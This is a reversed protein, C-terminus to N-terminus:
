VIQFKWQCLFGRITTLDHSRHLLIDMRAITLGDAQIARSLNAAGCYLEIFDVNNGVINQCMALLSFAANSGPICAHTAVWGAESEM